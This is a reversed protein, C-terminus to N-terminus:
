ESVQEFFDGLFEESSTFAECAKDLALFEAHYKKRFADRTNRSTWYDITMYRNENDADHLLVTKIYAEDKSFLSVWDGNADYANLFSRRNAEDVTYQWVYDFREGPM